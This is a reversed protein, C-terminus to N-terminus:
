LYVVIGSCRSTSARPCVEARDATAALSDARRLNRVIACHRRRHTRECLLAALTAYCAGLPADSPLAELVRLPDLDAAAGRTSLLDFLFYVSSNVCCNSISGM